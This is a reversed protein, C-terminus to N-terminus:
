MAEEEEECFLFSREGVGEVPSLEETPDSYLSICSTESRGAKGKRSGQYM